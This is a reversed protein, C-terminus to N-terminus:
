GACRAYRLANRAACETGRGYRFIRKRWLKLLAYDGKVWAEKKARSWGKLQMEATLAEERTGFAEAKLLQVPLRSATHCGPMANQRHQWIRKELEDTHGVYYSGDACVLLYVHFAM